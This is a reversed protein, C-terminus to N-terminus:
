LVAAPVPPQSPSGSPEARLVAVQPLREPLPLVQLFFIKLLNKYFEVANSLRTVPSNLTWGWRKDGHTKLCAM